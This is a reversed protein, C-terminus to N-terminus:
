GIDKQTSNKLESDSQGIGSVGYSIGRVPRYPFLACQPSCCQKVESLAYGMCEICQSNIAARLSRGGMAVDYVRRFQRPISARHESIREMRNDTM